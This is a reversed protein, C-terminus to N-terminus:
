FFLCFDICFVFRVLMGFFCWFGRLRVCVSSWCLNCKSGIQAGFHSWCPEGFRALFSCFFLVFFFCFFLGLQSFFRVWSHVSLPTNLRKENYLFTKTHKRRKIKKFSIHKLLSITSRKQGSKPQKQSSKAARPSSKAWKQGRKPRKQGSKAARPGRKPRKQGSKAARPGSKPRKQGSKAARPREQAARPREQAARPREQGSKAM